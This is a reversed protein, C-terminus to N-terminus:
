EDRLRREAREVGQIKEALNIPVGSQLNGRYIWDLTFGFAACLKLAANVSIRDRGREYNNWHQQGIGAVRCFQAQSLGSAIRAVRLREAIMDHM